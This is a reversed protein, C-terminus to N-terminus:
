NEEVKKERGLWDSALKGKSIRWFMFLIFAYLLTYAIGTIVGVTTNFAGTMFISLMVVPTVYTLLLFLVGVLAGVLALVIKM